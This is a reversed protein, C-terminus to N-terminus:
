NGYCDSFYRDDYGKAKDRERQINDPHRYNNAWYEATAKKDLLGRCHASNSRPEGMTMVQPGDSEEATRQARPMQVVNTNIAVLAMPKAGIACPTDSYTNGCRYVDGASAPLSILALILILRKM